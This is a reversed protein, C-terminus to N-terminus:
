RASCVYQLNCFASKSLGIEELDEDPVSGDVLAEVTIAEKLFISVHQHLIGHGFVTAVDLQSSAM